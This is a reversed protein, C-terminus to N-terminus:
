CVLCRACKTVLNIIPVGNNPSDRDPSIVFEKIVDVVFPLGAGCFVFNPRFRSLYWCPDSPGVRPALIDLNMSREIPLRGTKWLDDIGGIRQGGVEGGTWQNVEDGM